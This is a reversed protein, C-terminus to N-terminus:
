SLGLLVYWLLPCALPLLGLSGPGHPKWISFSLLHLAPSLPCPQKEPRKRRGKGPCSCVPTPVALSFSADLQYVSLGGRTKQKLPSRLWLPFLLRPSGWAVQTSEKHSSTPHLGARPCLGFIESVSSCCSTEILRRRGVGEEAARGQGNWVETGVGELLSTGM